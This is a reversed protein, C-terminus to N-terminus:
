EMEKGRGATWVIGKWLATYVATGNGEREWCGELGNRLTRCQHEMIKGTGTRPSNREVNSYGATGNGEGEWGELPNKAEFRNRGLCGYWEKRFDTYEYM